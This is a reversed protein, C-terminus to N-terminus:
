CRPALRDCTPRRSAPPPPLSPLSPPHHHLPASLYSSSNSRNRFPLARVVDIKRGIPSRYFIVHLVLYHLFINAYILFVTSRLVGDSSYASAKGPAASVSPQRKFPLFSPPLDPRGHSRPQWPPLSCPSFSPPLDLRGRWRPQWHDM